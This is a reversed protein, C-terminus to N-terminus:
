LHFRLLINALALKDRVWPMALLRMSLAEWVMCPLCGTPTLPEFTLLDGRVQFNFALSEHTM